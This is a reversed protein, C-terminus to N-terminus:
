KIDLTPPQMTLVADKDHIFLIRDTGAVTLDAVVGASVIMGSPWTITCNGGNILDVVFGSVKTTPINSFAITLTGAAPCTIQQMDGNGYDFTHSGGTSPSADAIQRVATRNLTYGTTDLNGGLSPTTDEVVNALYTGLDSIQSETISISAETFHVTGDAIHTDIQAHTNTGITSLATHDFDVFEQATEAGNIQIIKAAQGTYASPTDNLGLYSTVGAGGVGGGATTNPISGRLDETDVLVWANNKLTLTFRAILFGTGKFEVPITYVSFNNPDAIASDTNIFAYSDTPLNLMIHSHEGTKNAVGWMVVSFSTNDLSNGSADLSIVNLNSIDTFPTISDNVIHIDDGTSTDHAPFAQRHM